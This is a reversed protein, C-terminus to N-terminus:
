AYYKELYKSLFLQRELDSPMNDQYYAIGCGKPHANDIQCENLYNALDFHMPNWCAYEFDILTLKTNDEFAAL